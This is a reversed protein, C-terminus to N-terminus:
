AIYERKKRARASRVILIIVLLCFIFAAQFEAGIIFGVVNELASVGMGAFIIGAFNGLGALIVIMFSRFTYVLGIFPHITWIMVVLSGGIGCLAANIAFTNAYVKDIDIGLIRAARSNQSTARIAQGFRSYRMVIFLITGVCLSILFSIIQINAIIIKGDFLVQIGLEPNATVVDPGFIAQMLQQMLIAIGFTALITIFIDKQGLLRYIITKYIAWGYAYLVVAVIPITLIPHIGFQYFLTYTIYGGFIVLEGQAFNIIDMVGWILALGYAILAFIAGILFGNILLQALFEPSEILIKLYTIM